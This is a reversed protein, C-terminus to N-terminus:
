HSQLPQNTDNSYSVFEKIRLNLYELTFLKSEFIFEHLIARIVYICVGELVDHMFDVSKNVVFHYNRLQNFVCDEKLGTENTKARILDSHYNEQTRLLKKKETCFQSCEVSDATCIRCYSNAKFSEVMGCIANLGLNDGAILVTQFKFVILVNDVTITIGTDRLFNM